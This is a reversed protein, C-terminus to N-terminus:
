YVFDKYSEEVKAAGNGSVNVMKLAKLKLNYVDFNYNLSLSKLNGDKIEAVIVINTFKVNLEQLDIQSAVSGLAEAISDATEDKTSFDNTAHHLANKGDKQADQCNQLQFKYVDGTKEVKVVDGETLTMGKLLFKDKMGEPAANGKAKKATLPAGDGTIDLFGGVVSEVSANKDVMGIVKNLAEKGSVELPRTYVCKRTWSYAASAGKATADNLLKISAAKSSDATSGGNNDAPKDAPQDAPTDSPTDAPTDAPTDSPVDAPTDSPTDTSTSGTSTSTSTNTNTNTNPGAVVASGSKATFAIQVLAFTFAIALFFALAKRFTGFFIKRKAVRKEITAKVEEPTKVKKAMTPEGKTKRYITPAFRCWVYNDLM